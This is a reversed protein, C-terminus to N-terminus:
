RRTREPYGSPREIDIGLRDALRETEAVAEPRQDDLIWEYLQQLQISVEEQNGKKPSVPEVAVVGGTQDEWVM